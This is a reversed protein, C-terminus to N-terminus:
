RIGTILVVDALDTQRTVALRRGDPSWAFDFIKRDTFTTLRRPSGGDIAQVWINLPDTTDTFAISRGDPARQGPRAELERPNTCDPLDCEMILTRGNVVGAGFKLRRGDPSPSLGMVLRHLLERSPGGALPVSWLSNIGSRVSRYLVTKDDALIVAGSADGEVLIAVGSGDINARYIGRKDGGRLFVVTKGDSTVSPAGADDAVLSPARQGPGVAFVGIGGPTPAQYVLGGARDLAVASTGPAEPVVETMAGGAGDGVWIGARVDVRTTVVSQRDSTLSMGAFFTLEQTLPTLAGTTLDVRFIGPQKGPLPGNVLAHRDDLWAADAVAIGELPVIQTETGTAVDIVVLESNRGQREPLRSLGLALLSRGDTSWTPRSPRWSAIFTSVFRQPNRRTALVRENTGDADAVVVSDEVGDAKSRIFAMLRGDPAWSTASWVGTVIRRATGGLFPVRWLDPQTVGRERAVFDVYSGDPTVSLGVFSRGPVNPVIEVDSQTTLQRVWVSFEASDRGQRRFYTVFKGDPSLAGLGINGTFTLPQIQLATTAPAPAPASTGVGTFWVGAAIAGVVGAIALAV